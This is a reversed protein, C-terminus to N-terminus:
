ALISLDLFEDHESMPVSDVLQCAYGYGCTVLSGTEEMLQRKAKLRALFGDYYGKGRGLRGGEADFALGPVLILCDFQNIRSLSLPPLSEPPVPIAWRDRPWLTWDESLAVFSLSDGDIRPVALDKGTALAKDIVPSTDIESPMSLFALILDAEWFLPQDFLREAAAQSALRREESGITRLREKSAIRLEAKHENPTM